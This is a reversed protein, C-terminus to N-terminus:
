DKKLIGAYNRNIKYVFALIEAVAQYLEPPITNGLDIASLVSVLDADQYLPIDHTRAIEMIREAVTGTGKALVVPAADEGSRYRLAIAKKRNVASKKESSPTQSGADQPHLSPDSMM